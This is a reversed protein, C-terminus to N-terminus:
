GREAARREGSASRDFTTCYVAALWGVCAVISVKQVLPLLGFLVNGYYMVASALISLICVGGVLSLLSRRTIYLLHVTALQAVLAFPLAINVMLDHMPTVVLFAYVM